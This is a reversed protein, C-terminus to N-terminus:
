SREGESLKPPQGREDLELNKNRNSPIIRRKAGPFELDLERGQFLHDLFIALSSIESHPQNTISINYDVMGYVKGPVKSGGVLVLLDENKARSRVKGIVDGLPLGYMTLHVKSGEFTNIVNTWERCYTVQFDGGWNDVVDNLTDIINQDRDGSFIMESSGLARATLGVHTTTRKDRTKRHGLRLVHVKM